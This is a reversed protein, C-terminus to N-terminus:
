LEMNQTPVVAWKLIQFRMAMYYAQTDAPPVIPTDPGAIGTALGTVSTVNINYIHNRVMGFDGVHVDAWNFAAGEVKNPNGARYWGLHRVPINFFGKGANYYVAYGVQHALNKNAETLTLQSEPKEGTGTYVQQYGNGAAVYIDSLDADSKIQLTVNRNALKVNTGIVSADPHKIECIRTLTALDTANFANLRVYNNGEKKFFVTQQAFFRMLMSTGGTVASGASNTQNKFYVYPKGDSNSQYTYFSVGSTAETNDNAVATGDLTMTYHGVTIISPMAAAPNKSDLATKGVTTERYYHPTKGDVDKNGSTVVDNYSLYKQHLTEDKIDSAVEPYTATFYAPSNAWYSRHFTYNNWTWSNTSSLEENIEKNMEQFSYNGPLIVGAEGAKRFSKVAFTENAQANLDWGDLAFKLKVAKTSFKGDADYVGAVTEYEDIGNTNFTFNLKSAYREVWIDIIKASEDINVIEDQAEKRTTFVYDSPVNAAMVLNNSSDYYVSNSMPFRMNTGTGTTVNVRTVQQITSLPNQLESPSSPNIYCMVQTPPTQGKFVDVEVVNYHKNEATNVGGPVEQFDSLKMQVLNGVVNGESDYFVFYIDDIASEQGSGPTFDSDDDAPNGNEASGRTGLMDSNIGISVYFKSDSKMPENGSTEPADSSCGALGFAAMAVIGYFFKNTKM